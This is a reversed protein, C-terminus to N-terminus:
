LESVTKGLRGRLHYDELRAVPDAATVTIEGLPHMTEPDELEVGDFLFKVSAKAEAGYGAQFAVACQFHFRDKRM